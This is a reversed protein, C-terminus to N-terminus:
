LGAKKSHLCLKGHTARTTPWHVGAVLAGQQACCVAWLPSAPNHPVVYYRGPVPGEYLAGVTGHLTLRGRACALDLSAPSYGSRTSQVLADLSPNITAM